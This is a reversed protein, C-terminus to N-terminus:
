VLSYKRDLSASDCCIGSFQEVFSKTSREETNLQPGM